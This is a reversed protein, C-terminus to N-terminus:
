IPNPASASAGRAPTTAMVAMLDACPFFNWEWEPLPRRRRPPVVATAIPVSRLAIKWFSLALVDLRAVDHGQRLNRKVNVYRAFARFLMWVNQDAIRRQGAGESIAHETAVATREARDLVHWIRQELRHDDALDYRAQTWAHSVTRAFRAIEMDWGTFRTGLAVHPFSLTARMLRGLFLIWERRHAHNDPLMRAFVELLWITLRFVVEPQMSGPDGPAWQKVDEATPRAAVPEGMVGRTLRVPPNTLYDKLEEYDRTM